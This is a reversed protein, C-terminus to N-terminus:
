KEQAHEKGTKAKGQLEPVPKEKNKVKMQETEKSSPRKMGKKAMEEGAKLYLKQLIGGKIGCLDFLFGGM